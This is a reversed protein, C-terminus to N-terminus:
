GKHSSLVMGVVFIITAVICGVVTWLTWGHLGSKVVQESPGKPIEDSNLAAAILSLPVLSVQCSPCIKPGSKTMEEQWCSKHVVFTCKCNVLDDSSVLEDGKEGGDSCLFCGTDALRTLSSASGSQHIPNLTAM